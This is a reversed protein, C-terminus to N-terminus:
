CLASRTGKINYLRVLITALEKGPMDREAYASVLPYSEPNIKSTPKTEEQAVRDEVWRIRDQTIIDKISKSGVVQKALRMVLRTMTTGSSPGLFKREATERFEVVAAERVLDEQDPEDDEHIDFQALDSELRRVEKQLDVIHSRPFM